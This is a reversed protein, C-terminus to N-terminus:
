PALEVAPRRSPEALVQRRPQRRLHRRTWCPTLILRLAEVRGTQHAVVCQARNVQEKATALIARNDAPGISTGIFPNMPPAAPTALRSSNRERLERRAVARGANGGGAGVATRVSGAVPEDGSRSRALLL